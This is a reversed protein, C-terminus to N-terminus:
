DEGDLLDQQGQLTNHCDTGMLTIIGMSYAGPHGVVQEVALAAGAAVFLVACKLRRPIDGLSEAGGESDAEDPQRALLLRCDRRVEEAAPPALAAVNRAAKRVNTAFERGPGVLEYLEFKTENALPYHDLAVAIADEFERDHEGYLEELWRAHGPAEELLLALEEGVRVLLAKDDPSPLSPGALEQTWVDDLWNLQM